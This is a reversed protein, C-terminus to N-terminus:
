PGPRVAVVVRGRVGQEVRLHAVAAQELPLVEGLRVAVPGAALRANLARAADALEEVSAHSIVFGTITAGLRYMARVPLPPRQPGGAVAVVRGREALVAMALDLDLHGSTDVLLDVGGPAADRLREGLRPDRYDLVATAGARRCWDADRAGASALVRAGAAAALQLLATGVNGAGGGVFVTQGPRVSAHRFLALYATAAPHVWAVAAAPDAGDPLHYLREAPVAAYESFSGQRGGHGLSNCWVRDGAAFGSVAAGTAAVTGVLDRGVVFPFPTPTPYAGSRVMTDVRNVAALEVEVLVETAGIAPVPLRGLRIARPPGLETLYAARMTARAARREVAHM